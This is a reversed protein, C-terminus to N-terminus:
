NIRAKSKLVGLPGSAGQQRPAADGQPPANDPQRGIKAEIALRSAPDLGLASRYRALKDIRALMVDYAPNRVIKTTTATGGDPTRTERTLEFTPTPPAKMDREQDVLLSCYEAIVHQDTAKFLLSTSPDSWLM